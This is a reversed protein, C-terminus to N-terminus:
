RGVGDRGVSPNNRTPMLRKTQPDGHAPPLGRSLEGDRAAQKAREALRDVEDGLYRIVEGDDVAAFVFEISSVPQGTVARVALAYAGGQLEYHTAPQRADVSSVRHTKYDVVGLTGDVHEYLLDITGEIITQGISVAVPAERWYRGSALAARVPASVAARRAYAAVSSADVQYETASARALEDLDSLHDLDVRQLVAHVALGLSSAAQRGGGSHQREPSGNDSAAASLGSPTAIHERGFRELQSSRDALWGEELAAEDLWGGEERVRGDMPPESDDRKLELDLSRWGLASQGDLVGQIHAAHCSDKANRFLSLVLHERARTGAVYLVRLLEAERLVKEREGDWGPTEFKGCHV